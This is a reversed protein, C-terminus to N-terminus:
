FTVLYQWTSQVRSAMDKNIILIFYSLIIKWKAYGFELRLIGKNKLKIKSTETKTM